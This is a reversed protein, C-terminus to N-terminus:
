RAKKGGILIDEGDIKVEYAPEPEVAPGRLVEGTTVDFQSGHCICTIVKGKLLGGDLPCSAHTCINGIAYFKGDVNSLLVSGGEVNIQKQKGPQLKSVQLAIRFEAM